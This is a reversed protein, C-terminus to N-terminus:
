QGITRRLKSFCRKRTDAVTELTDPPEEDLAIALRAIDYEDLRQKNAKNLISRAESMTSFQDSWPVNMDESYEIAELLQEFARM